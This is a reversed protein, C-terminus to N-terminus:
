MFYHSHLLYHSHLIIHLHTCSVLFPAPSKKRVQLSKPVINSQENGAQAKKKKKSTSILEHVSIGSKIGPDTWLPETLQSSQPQIHGSLNCTVENGFLNGCKAQVAAYDAQEPKRSASSLLM